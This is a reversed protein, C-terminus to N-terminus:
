FRWKIGSQVIGLPDFTVNEKISGSNIIILQYKLTEEKDIRNHLKDSYEFVNINTNNYALKYFSKINNLSKIEVDVLTIGPNVEIENTVNENLKVEYTLKSTFMEVARKESSNYVFNSYTVGFSFCIVILLILLIIIEKKFFKIYKEKM